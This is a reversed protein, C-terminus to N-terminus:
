LGCPRCPRQNSTGRIIFMKYLNMKIQPKQAIKTSGM